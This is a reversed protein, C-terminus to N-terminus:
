QPRKALAADVAPDHLDALWQLLAPYTAPNAALSPRLEPAEAAIRNLLVPDTAPDAAQQATFGHSPAPAAERAPAPVPAAPAPGPTAEPAAAAPATAAPTPATAADTAQEPAAPEPAAQEPAASARGAAPAQEPTAAAPASVTPPTPAAPAPGTPGAPAPPGYSPAGAPPGYAPPGYGPVPGTPAAPGYTPAPGAYPAGGPPAYGPGPAPAVSRFVDTLTKNVAPLALAWAAALPLGFALLGDVWDASLQDSAGAVALVVIGLVLVFGLVVLAPVRTPGALSARGVVAAVGIILEIVLVTVVTGTSVYRGQTLLVIAHAVGFGALLVVYLLADGAAALGYGRRDAGIRWAAPATALSAAAPLVVVGLSAAGVTLMSTDRAVCLTWLVLTAGTVILTPRWADDGRAVALLAWVAIAALGVATIVLYAIAAGGFSGYMGNVAPAILGLVQFVVAAIALGLFTPRLWATQAGAFTADTEGARPVAALTAGALGVLVAPGVGPTISSSKGLISVLDLVVAIVAIAFYPVNVLARVLAVTRAQWAPPFVGVRYLYHVSLSLVSLITILIVEIHKTAQTSGNWPLGLSLLLLLAAVVDTVYDRAPVGHFGPAVHPV